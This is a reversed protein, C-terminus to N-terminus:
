RVVFKNGETLYIGAPLYVTAPQNARLEVRAVQAGTPTVIGVVKDVTSLLTISGIGTKVSLNQAGVEMDYISTPTNTNEGFVVDMTMSKAQQAMSNPYSFYGRFPRCRAQKAGTLNDTSYLKDNGYYFANGTELGCYSGQSTLTVQANPIQGTATKGSIYTKGKHETTPTIIGGKQDIVFAYVGKDTRNDETVEIMYPVNPDTKLKTLEVFHASAQFDTGTTGGDEISIFNDSQMERIKVKCGEESIHESQDLSFAFPLIVTGKTQSTNASVRKYVIRHTPFNRIKYPSYFPQQDTLVIDNFAQYSEDEPAKRAMNDLNSSEDLVFILANKALGMDSIIGWGEDDISYTGALEKSADIYLIQNYESPGTLTQGQSLNGQQTKVASILAEQIARISLAGKNEESPSENYQTTSVVAGWYTKNEGNKGAFSSDYIKDFKILASSEKPTVELNLTYFAWSRHQSAWTPAINYRPEDTVFLYRTAESMEGENGLTIKLKDFKEDINGYAEDSYNYVRLYFSGNEDAGLGANISDINNFVFKEKATVDVKLKKDANEGSAAETTNNYINNKPTYASYSGSNFEKYYESQVFSLRSSHILEGNPYTEDAYYSYLDEITFECTRNKWDVPVYFKTEGGNLLFDNSTFQRSVKQGLENNTARVTIHSIYPSLGEMTPTLQMWVDQDGDLHFKVADNNLGSISLSQLEDTILIPEEPTGTKDYLTLQINSPVSSSIETIALLDYEYVLSNGLFLGKSNKWALYNSNGDSIGKEDRQFVTAENEESVLSINHQFSNDSKMWQKVGNEDKCYIKGGEVYWRTKDDGLKLKNNIYQGDITLLFSINDFSNLDTWRRVNIDVNKLRYQIPLKNGNGDVGEIPTELYYTNGPKLHYYWEGDVQERTISLNGQESGVTGVDNKVSGEEYLLMDAKLDSLRTNDDVTMSIRPTPAENTPHNQLRLAGVDLMGTNFTSTMWSVGETTATTEGPMKVAFPAETTYTVELYEVRLAMYSNPRGEGEMNTITFYLINGMDDGSRELVAKNGRRVTQFDEGHVSLSSSVENIFVSQGKIQLPTGTGVETQDNAVIMKYGTFRYGRPLVLQFYGPNLMGGLIVIQKGDSYPYINNAPTSFLGDLTQYGLDSTILSLPLQYHRWYCSAGAAFGTESYKGTINNM